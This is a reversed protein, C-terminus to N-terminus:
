CCIMNGTTYKEERKSSLSPFNYNRSTSGNQNNIYMASQNVPQGRTNVRAIYCIHKCLYKM